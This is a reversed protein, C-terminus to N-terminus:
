LREGNQFRVSELQLKLLWLLDAPVSDTFPQSICAWLSTQRLEGVCCIM